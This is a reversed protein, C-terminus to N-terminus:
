SLAVVEKYAAHKERALLEHSQRHVVPLMRVQWTIQTRTTTDPGGLAIERLAPDEFATIHRQWVDLYVINWEDLHAAIQAGPYSPQESFLVDRENECLIGDVYYNGQKILLDHGHRSHELLLTQDAPDPPLAPRQTKENVIIQFGATAAMAGSTGLLDRLQIESYHQLIDVQENWDADLQVRGQQMRVSRYHKSPNFTLRSFDGQM